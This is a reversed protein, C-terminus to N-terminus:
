YIHSSIEKTFLIVTWFRRTKSREDLITYVFELLLLFWLKARRSCSMFSIKADEFIFIILYGRDKSLTIQKHWVSM